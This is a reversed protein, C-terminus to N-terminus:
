RSGPLDPLPFELARRMVDGPPKLPFRKWYGQPDSEFFLKRAGRPDRELLDQVLASNELPSAPASELVAPALGVSAMPLDTMLDLGGSTELQTMLRERERDRSEVATIMKGLDGRKGSLEGSEQELAVISISLASAEAMAKSRQGATEANLARELALDYTARKESLEARITDLRREVLEVKGGYFDIAEQEADRVKPGGTLLNMRMEHIRGKLEAANAKVDASAPPAEPEVAPDQVPEQIALAAPSLFVLILLLHKM